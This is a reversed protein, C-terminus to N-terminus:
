FFTRERLQFAPTKRCFGIVGQIWGQRVRDYQTEYGVPTVNELSFVDWDVQSLDISGEEKFHDALKQVYPNYQADPLLQEKPPAALFQEAFVSKDFALM